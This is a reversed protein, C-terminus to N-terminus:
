LSVGDIEFTQITNTSFYSSFGSEELHTDHGYEVYQDGGDIQTSWRVVKSRASPIASFTSMNFSITQATDYNAAVIVLRKSKSDYAAMVNASGGDLIQMGPRVHRTFQALVFYKQNIGYLDKTDNDAEVLGWGDGDLAQWYVWATPFLWRFDLLLNSVLDLGSGTGDGYESNWISKGADSALDYLIDRRGGGYQYGHVNVRGIQGIAISGINQLNTVAQDYYSEDSASIISRLGRKALENSLYNIITAQTSIEFHCGEQTGNANWWDASPENFAEVSTFEVGHRDKFYKAINAMYIAHQQLNWEQINNDSGDDSGSPNHNVCMWWMPSNSFLETKDVGRSIALQLAKRQNADVTWDWSSSNPDDSAWDLWYGDMQRSSLINPSEVMSAGDYTNWSSAGANYRVINLGLGPLTTNLFEHKDLTFLVDAIDERQGFAKAWWVLSTGWGEWTGRNSQANISTTYDATTVGSLVTAIALLPLGVM